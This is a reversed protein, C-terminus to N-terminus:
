AYGGDAMLVEGDGTRLNPAVAPRNLDILDIWPAGTGTFKTM